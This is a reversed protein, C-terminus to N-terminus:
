VARMTRTPSADSNSFDSTPSVRSPRPTGGNRSRMALARSRDTGMWTQFPHATARPTVSSSRAVIPPIQTVGGSTARSISCASRTALRYDSGRDTRFGAEQLEEVVVPRWGPVVRRDGYRLPDRRDLGAGQVECCVPEGAGISGRQLVRVREGAHSHSWCVRPSIRPVLLM